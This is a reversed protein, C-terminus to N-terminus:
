LVPEGDLTTLTKKAVIIVTEGSEAKFRFGTIRRHEFQEITGHLERKRASYQRLPNKLVSGEISLMPPFVLAFAPEIPADPKNTHTASARFPLRAKKGRRPADAVPEGFLDRAVSDREEM